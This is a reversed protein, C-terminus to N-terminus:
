VGAAESRERVSEGCQAYNIFLRHDNQLLREKMSVCLDVVAGGISRKRRLRYSELEGFFLDGISM